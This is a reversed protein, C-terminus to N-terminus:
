NSLVNRPFFRSTLTREATGGPRAASGTLTVEIAAVRTWDDGAGLNEHVSGDRMVARVRFEGVNGILRLAGAEDSNVVVELVGARLRYRREELLYIRPEEDIWYDHQWTGAERHIQFQANDENRYVFFEGRGGGAPTYIYALVEGGNEQRYERWAQLNDPWGDSDNDIIRCQPHQDLFPWNDDRAVRVVNQAGGGVIRPRVCVPLVADLLNRRLVLEGGDHVEIATLALGSRAGLREGAIRIDAGLLDMGSRLNQNLDTRLRDTQYLQRSSLTVAFAAGIVVLSVALAVLVEVLTLGSTLARTSPKSRM